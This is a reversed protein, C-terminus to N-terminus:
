IVSCSASIWDCTATITCEWPTVCTVLWSNDVIAINTDSSHWYISTEVVWTSPSITAALQATQWAETLAISNKNLSISSVHVPAENFYYYNWKNKLWKLTAM